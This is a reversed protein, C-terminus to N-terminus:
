KSRSFSLFRVASSLQVSIIKASSIRRRVKSLCPTFMVGFKAIKVWAALPMPRSTAGKRFTAGIRKNATAPTQANLHTDHM